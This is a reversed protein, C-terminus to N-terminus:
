LTAMQDIFAGTGGACSGNMREDIGGDFFIIKADEGGLEVVAAADPELRRVVEGTAFVEQVFSVGASEALGLGASGSIAAVLPRDGAYPAAEALLELTKQRVQSFHRQYNEYLIKGDEVLVVKATTSGIDIGLALGSAASM